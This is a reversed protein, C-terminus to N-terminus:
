VYEFKPFIIVNETEEGDGNITPTSLRISGDQMTDDVLLTLPYIESDEDLIPYGSEDYETMFASDIGYVYIYNSNKDMEHNIFPDKDADFSQGQTLEMGYVLFPAADCSKTLLDMTKPNAYLNLAYCSPYVQHFDREFEKIVERFSIGDVIRRGTSGYDAPNFFYTIYFEKEM